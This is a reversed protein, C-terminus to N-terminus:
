NESVTRYVHLYIYTYIHTYIYIYIYTYSTLRLLQQLVKVNFLELNKWISSCFLVLFRGNAGSATSDTGTPRDRQTPGTSDTGTPRGRQTPGKGARHVARQQERTVAQHVDKDLMETQSRCLASLLDVLDDPDDNSWKPDVTTYFGLLAVSVCTSPSSCV